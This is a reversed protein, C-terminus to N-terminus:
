ILADFCVFGLVVFLWFVLLFTYLTHFYDAVTVIILNLLNQGYKIVLSQIWQSVQFTSNFANSPIVPWELKQLLLKHYQSLDDCFVFSNIPFLLPNILRAIRGWKPHIAIVSTFVTTFFLKHHIKQRNYAANDSFWLKLEFLVGIPCSPTWNDGQGREVLWVLQVLRVVSVKSTTSVLQGTPVLSDTSFAPAPPFRFPLSIGIVVSVILVKFDLHSTSVMPLTSSLPVRPILSVKSVLSLLHILSVLDVLRVATLFPM